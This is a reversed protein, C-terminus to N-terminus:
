VEMDETIEFLRKGCDNCYAYKGITKYRLTNIYDGNYAGNTGDLKYNYRITGSIRQKVYFEDNGCHICEKIPYKSM